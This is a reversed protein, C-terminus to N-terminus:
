QCEDILKFAEFARASAPDGPTGPLDLEKDALVHLACRIFESLRYGSGDAVILHEIRVDDARKLGVSALFPRILCAVMDVEDAAQGAQSFLAAARNGRQFHTSWVVKCADLDKHREFSVAAQSRPRGDILQIAAEDSRSGLPRFKGEMDLYVELKSFTEQRDDYRVLRFFVAAASRWDFYDEASTYDAYFLGVRAEAAEEIAVEYFSVGTIASIDEVLSAVHAEASGVFSPQKGGVRVYPIRSLKARFVSTASTNKFILRVVDEDTFEEAASAGTLQIGAVVLGTALLIASALKQIRLIM